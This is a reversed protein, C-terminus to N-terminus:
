MGKYNNDINEQIASQVEDWEKDDSIDKFTFSEDDNEQLISIYVRENDKDVQEGKTYMIYENDYGEVEFIDLVEVEINRGNEDVVHIMYDKLEERM